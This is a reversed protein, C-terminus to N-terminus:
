ATAARTDKAWNMLRYQEISQAEQMMLTLYDQLSLHTTHLGQIAMQAIVQGNLQVRFVAREADLHFAVLQGARAKGLYYRYRDIMVSGNANVRRRYVRGHYAHLWRDPDITDPLEPLTPLDPFASYPPQNQCSLGQHPRESNYFHGYEELQTNMASLFEPRHVWLCEEKLTRIVREVFPKLDPRRPPCVVPEIGLCHLFRVLPSPYSDRTWAGFLRSDRDFRLRQPLGKLLLLKAISQLATHAHFASKAETHVLISSGRDIVVLFEAGNEGGVQRTEAFDLEWEVMPAPREIPVHVIVTKPQIRGHAKLIRRITKSSRPLWYGGAKLREDRHLHYLILEAGARRHYHEPLSDRLGLIAEVVLPDVSPSLKKPRHSRSQFVAAKLPQQERFRKLWKKAWSVSREVAQALQAAKWDPHEHWSQYLKVRSVMWETEM